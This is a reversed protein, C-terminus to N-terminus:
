QNSLSLNAYRIRDPPLYENCVKLVGMFEDTTDCEILKEDTESGLLKFSKACIDIIVHDILIRDIMWTKWLVLM